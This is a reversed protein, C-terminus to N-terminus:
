IRLRDGYNKGFRTAIRYASVCILVTCIGGCFTIAAAVGDTGFRQGLIIALPVVLIAGPLACYTSLHAKELGNFFVSGINNVMGFLANAGLLIVLAHDDFPIGLWLRIAYPGTAIFILVLLSFGATQWLGHRLLNPFDQHRGEGLAFSFESWLPMVYALQLANIGSFISVVARFPGVEGVSVIGSVVFSASYNAVIAVLQLVGFPRAKRLIVKCRHIFDNPPRFHWTRRRLFTRFALASVLVGVFQYIVVGITLSAHTVASFALALVLMLWTLADFLANFSVERYSFFSNQGLYLPIRLLLVLVSTLFLMSGLRQLSLSNSQFLFGFGWKAYVASLLVGYVCSLATLLFFGTFFDASAEEPGEIALRNRIANAVGLDFSLVITMMPTVLAWIGFEARSFIRSAFGMILLSCLITFIRAAVLYVGSSSFLAALQQLCAKPLRFSRMVKEVKKVRKIRFVRRVRNGRSFAVPLLDFM